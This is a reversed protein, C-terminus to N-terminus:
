LAGNFHNHSQVPLRSVLMNSHEAEMLTNLMAYVEEGSM